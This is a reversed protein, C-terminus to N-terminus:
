STAGALLIRVTNTQAPELNHITLGSVTTDGDTNILYFERCRVYYDTEASEVTDVAIPHEGVFAMAAFSTIGDLGLVVEDGAAITVVLKKARGDTVTVNADSFRHIVDKFTNDGDYIAAHGQVDIRM